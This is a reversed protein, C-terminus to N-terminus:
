VCICNTYRREHRLRDSSAKGVSGVPGVSSVPGAYQCIFQVLRNNPEQNTIADRDAFCGANGNLLEGCEKREVGVLGGKNM